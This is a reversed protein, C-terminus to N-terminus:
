LMENAQNRNKFGSLTQLMAIDKPQIFSMWGVMMMWQFLNLNMMYDLSLHLLFVLVLAARRTKGFWIAIPIGLELLLTAWSMIAMLILSEFIFDPVPLRYFMDDLRSVYYIATGGFWETGKLKEFASFFVVSATQIQILRLPWIPYRKPGPNEVSNKKSAWWNEISWYKGAPSFWLYFAMLRFLVDEGDFNLLNRHVFSVYLVFISALQCRTFLGLM